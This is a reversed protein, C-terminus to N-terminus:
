ALGLESAGVLAVVELGAAEIAERGGAGRDVVALVGLVTAGAARVVEVARLAS